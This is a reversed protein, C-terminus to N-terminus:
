GWVVLEERKEAEDCISQLETIYRQIQAETLGCNIIRAGGQGYDESGDRVALAPDLEKLLIKLKHPYVEGCYMGEEDDVLGLANAFTSFNGNAINLEFPYIEFSEGDLIEYTILGRAKCYEMNRSITLTVSM